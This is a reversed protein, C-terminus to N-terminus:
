SMIIDSKHFKRVNPSTMCRLSKLFIPGVEPVFWSLGFRAALLAHELILVGALGPDMRWKGGKDYMFILLICNSVIAAGGLYQAGVIM